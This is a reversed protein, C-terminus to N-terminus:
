KELPDVDCTDCVTFFDRAGEAYRVVFLRNKGCKGCAKTNGIWSGFRDITQKM